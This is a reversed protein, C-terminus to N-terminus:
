RDRGPKPVSASAILPNAAIVPSGSPGGTRGGNPRASPMADSAVAYAIM